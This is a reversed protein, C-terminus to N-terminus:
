LWQRAEMRARLADIVRRVTREHLGIRAAIEEFTLGQRRLTLIEVEVPTRGAALQDMRDAAQAEQSPTPDPAIVALPAEGGDGRRVYLREERRLDYKRTRTCRRHEERVKNQAVGALFGRFHQANEFDLPRRGPSAFISQWIAQVFDMSDFRTRLSRPLRHRVMLRVEAEFSRLLQEVAAGDGARARAILDV